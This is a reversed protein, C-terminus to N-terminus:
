KPINSSLINEQPSSTGFHKSKASLLVRLKKKNLLQATIARYIRYISVSYTLTILRLRRCQDYSVLNNLFLHNVDCLVCPPGNKWLWMKTLIILIDCFQIQLCIEVCNTQYCLLINFTEFLIILNLRNVCM